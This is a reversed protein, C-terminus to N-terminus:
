KMNQKELLPSLVWCGDNSDATTMIIVRSGCAPDIIKDDPQIDILKVAGRVIRAPTYYQGEGAKLNARRFVQFAASVAEAQM